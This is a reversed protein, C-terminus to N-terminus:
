DYEGDDDLIIVSGDDLSIGLPRTERLVELVPAEGPLEGPPPVTPMEVEGDPEPPISSLIKEVLGVPYEGTKDPDQEFLPPAVPRQESKPM